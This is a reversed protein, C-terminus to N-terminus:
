KPLQAVFREFASVVEPELIITNSAGCGNDTTIIISYGDFEAYVSDGLYVKSEPMFFLQNYLRLSHEKSSIPNRGVM